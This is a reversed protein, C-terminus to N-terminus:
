IKAKQKLKPSSREGSPPNIELIAKKKALEQTLDFLEFVLLMFRLSFKNKLM